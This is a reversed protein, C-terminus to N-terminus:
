GFRFARYWVELVSEDGFREVAGIAPREYLVLELDSVAGRLALDGKAHGSVVDLGAPTLRVLWEGERDTGHLHMTEGSGRGVDEGRAAFAEIMMFIEDIGDVALTPEIPNPAGRASQADFRHVALENACRRAVFTANRRDPHWTWVTQDASTRRLQEVLHAGLRTFWTVTAESQPMEPFPTKPRGAGECLVHTWFGTFEGVHKVLDAVTWLPCTPVKADLPGAALADAFAGIEREVAAVHEGYEM